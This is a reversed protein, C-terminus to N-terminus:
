EIAALLIEQAREFEPAIELAALASKRAEEKRGAKLLVSALQCHAGAMDSPKTLLNVELEDIAREFDGDNAYAEGLMTHFDSDFPDIYLANELQTQACAYDGAEMCLEALLELPEITKSNLSTLTRLEAIAEAKRGEEIHIEAIEFYPNPGDVFNPFLNRAQELYLLANEFDGEKKYYTGLHFNVFPNNANKDVAAQLASRNEALKPDFSYDVADLRYKKEIFTHFDTDFDDTSVGFVEGIVEPTQKGDRFPPFMEVLKTSGHKQIIFEVLQSAQFYSLSVQGPNTPRNFGTDLEKLPLLQGKQFALIFPVDLLMQWHPNAATTEYVAVGEALWRPIRNQTLRLHTVHVLEHWLTEGWVFNGQQRARPSDMAVVNGFCIGLFAQAGPLGFCRVAFDDHEPFIELLVEQGSPVPYRQLVQQWCRSALDPAYRSMVDNDTEHIRVVLDGRKHEKYEHFEDFLTLLNGVYKNYPDKSFAKELEERAQSEFGLRSLSTGLGARAAWDDPNMRLAKNYYDVSEKFLYRRALGDAIQFYLQGYQPNISLIAQEERRFKSSDGQFFYCVARMSRSTLSNPNVEIPKELKTLALDFDGLLIEIEALYDHAPVFNPNIALAGAAADRAAQLDENKLCKAIGLLAGSAKPNVKLADEFTIRADAVNYKSLFLDGWDVFPQWFSNSQSTADAFLENADRVRNLYVCARAMYFLDHPSLNGSSRYHSIFYNLTALGESREGWEMQMRGLHYKADLQAPNSSLAREYLSRAEQYDGLLEKINGLLSLADADRPTNVLAKQVEREAAEYEGTELLARAIGLHAPTRASKDQTLARFASKAREYEGVQLLAEADALTGASRVPCFFGALLLVVICRPFHLAMFFVGRTDPLDNFGSPM